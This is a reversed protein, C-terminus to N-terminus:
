LDMVPPTRHHLALVQGPELASVRELALGQELVQGSVPVRESVLAQGLVPAQEPVLGREQELAWVSKM